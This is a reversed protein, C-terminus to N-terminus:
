ERNAMTAESAAHDMNGDDSVCNLSFYILLLIRPRLSLKIKQKTEEQRESRVRVSRSWRSSANIHTTGQLIGLCENM